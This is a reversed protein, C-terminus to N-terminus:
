INLQEQHMNGVKFEHHHHYSYLGYPPWNGDDEHAIQDTETVLLKDSNGTHSEIVHFIILSFM